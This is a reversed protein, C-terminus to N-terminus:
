GKIPITQTVHGTNQIKGGMMDKSNTLALFELYRTSQYLRTSTCAQYIAGLISTYLTV